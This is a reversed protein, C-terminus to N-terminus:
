AYEPSIYTEGQDQNFFDESNDDVDEAMVPCVCMLMVMLIVFLKKVMKKEGKMIRKRHHTASM